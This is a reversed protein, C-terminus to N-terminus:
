RGAPHVWGLLREAKGCDFFGRHGSLDGRVPVDPYFRRALELSPEEALTDPAVIYFAEHGEFPAELSRLCANAAADFRTYAWLSKAGDTAPRPPSGVATRRDPVVWHFRMSAIRMAAHRRVFADAQQEALWKSLSYPDEGYNPHQEDLPFYDFRPARSFALGIANVSSAQCVRAIGHEAAARLANYSGTVNNNHVVHDPQRFPSPIAAMHIVADAGAFATVLGDYDSMEARIFRFRPDQPLAAPAVRDLSVVSDGRALAAAAIARGIRGSGGTLAIKV